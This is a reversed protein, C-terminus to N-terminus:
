TRLYPIRVYDEEDSYAEPEIVDLEINGNAIDAYRNLLGQIQNAYNQIVPINKSLERSYVFSIKLPEEIENLVRKTGSSLTYTKTSTFDIGLSFNIKSIVYNFSLFLIITSIVSIIFHKKLLFNSM